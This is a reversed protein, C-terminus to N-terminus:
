GGRGAGAARLPDGRRRARPQAREECAAGGRRLFGLGGVRVGGHELNHVSRVLPVEEDYFDWVAWEVYHPGSTPPNSNWEPKTTLTPVDSHDPENPLAPFSELTCGANELATQEDEDGGGLVLVALVIALLAIGTAGVLYLLKRRRGGGGPDTTSRQQPEHPGKPPQPARDKRAM